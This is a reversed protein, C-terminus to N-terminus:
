AVASVSTAKRMSILDAITRVDTLKELSQIASYLSEINAEHVIGKVCHDFKEKLQEPTLANASTRGAPQDVKKTLVTGDTLTVRVEAAYHNDAPFQEVTYPDVHVLRMLTQVNSDLFANGEFHSATVCRSVLARAVVYQVSFKGQFSTSVEPRNTHKLRRWHTFSDIRAVNGPKLDYEQALAIMADAAPHTSACCPYQKIAIGPDVIHLPSGWDPLIKSIDYNGEGIFLNFYGQDHEFIKLNATFGDRALKAALLGNRGCLGVHLPKTMSGMNTKIGSSMSAAISLATAIQEETLRLLKGAAAVLGFVGLTVTPHWGKIYQYMNVGLSIRCETEFGTIYATIFDKGSAGCEDALAFLGPLIPVSPHGGMSNCCDDFDLAHSATGNIMSAESASTRRDFGFILCPGTAHDAATIKELIRTLDDRSGLITVGVTDLIGIKAWKIAESPFQEYNMAYIRKALEQAFTM